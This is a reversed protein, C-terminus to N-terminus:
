DMRKMAKHHEASVKSHDSIESDKPMRFSHNEPHKSGVREIEKVSESGHGKARSEGKESAKNEAEGSKFGM